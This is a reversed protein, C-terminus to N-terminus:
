FHNQYDHAFAGKQYSDIEMSAPVCVLMHYLYLMLIGLSSNM